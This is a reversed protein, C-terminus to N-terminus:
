KTQNRKAKVLTATIILIVIGLGVLQIIGETKDDLM